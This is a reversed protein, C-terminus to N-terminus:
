MNLYEIMVSACKVKFDHDDRKICVDFEFPEFVHMTKRLRIGFGNYLLTWVKDIEIMPDSDSAWTIVVNKLQDVKKEFLFTFTICCDGSYPFRADTTTKESKTALDHLKHFPIPDSPQGKKCAIEGNFSYFHVNKAYQPSIQIYSM